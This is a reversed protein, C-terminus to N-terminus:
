SAPMLILAHEQDVCREMQEPKERNAHERQGPDAGGHKEGSEALSHQHPQLDADRHQEDQRHQVGAPYGLPIRFFGLENEQNVRGGRHGRLGNQQRELLNGADAGM